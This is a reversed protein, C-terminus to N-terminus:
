CGSRSLQKLPCRWLLVQKDNVDFCVPTSMSLYLSLAASSCQRKPTICFPFVATCLACLLSTWAISFTFNIASFLGVTAAASTRVICPVRRTWTVALYSLTRYMSIKSMYFEVLISPISATAYRQVNQRCCRQPIQVWSPSCHRLCLFERELLIFMFPMWRENQM